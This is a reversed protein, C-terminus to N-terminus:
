IRVWSAIAEAILLIIFGAIAKSLWLIATVKTVLGEKGNGYLTEEVRTLRKAQSDYVIRLEDMYQRVEDFVSQTESTM